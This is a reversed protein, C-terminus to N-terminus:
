RDKVRMSEPMDKVEELVLHEAACESLYKILRIVSGSIETYRYQRMTAPIM